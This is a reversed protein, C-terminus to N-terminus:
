TVYSTGSSVPMWPKDKEDRPPAPDHKVPDDEINYDRKGKPMDGFALPKGDEDKEPNEFSWFPNAYLGSPPYFKKVTEPPFIRVPGQVLVQPYAFDESYSQQRAWDWYPMRWIDRAENWLPFEPDEDLKHEKVWHNIVDAM